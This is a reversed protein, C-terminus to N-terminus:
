TRGKGVVGDWLFLYHNDKKREKNRPDTGERVQIHQLKKCGVVVSRHGGCLFLGLKKTGAKVELGRNTRRM